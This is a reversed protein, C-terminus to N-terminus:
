GGEQGILDGDVLLRLTGGTQGDWAATTIVGGRVVTVAEFRHVVGSELM